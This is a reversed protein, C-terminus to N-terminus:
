YISLNLKGNGKKGLSNFYTGGYYYWELKELYYIANEFTIKSIEIEQIKGLYWRGTKIYPLNYDVYYRLWNQHCYKCKKIEIEADGKNFEVINLYNKYNFPPSDCICNEKNETEKM